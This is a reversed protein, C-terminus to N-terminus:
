GFRDDDSASEKLILADILFKPGWSVLCYREYPANIPLSGTIGGDLDANGQDMFQASKVRELLDVAATWYKHAGTVQFLRMWVIALQAEGPICRWEDPSSWDAGFTGAIAGDRTWAIHLADAAHTASAVLDACEPTRNELMAGIELLGRVCYCLTHLTVVDCNSVFANKEFWGSPCQQRVTWRANAVAADRFRTEGTVEALRALSWATRVNYAHPIGNLTSTRWCGDTDQISVLWNGARIAAELYGRQGTKDATRMLGFIIQGTNFVRADSLRGVFSGPFAGDPLQLTLVWDTMEAARSALQEDGLVEAADYLTPVIYGTVEPYSGTWGEM